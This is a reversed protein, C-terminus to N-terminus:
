TWVSGSADHWHGVETGCELGLAEIATLHQLSTPTEVVISRDSQPAVGAILSCQGMPM